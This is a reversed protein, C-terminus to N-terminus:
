FSGLVSMRRMLVAMFAIYYTLGLDTAPDVRAIVLVLGFAAAFAMAHALLLLRM